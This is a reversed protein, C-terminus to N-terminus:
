RSVLAMTDELSLLQQEAVASAGVKSDSSLTAWDGLQKNTKFILSVIQIKLTIFKVM